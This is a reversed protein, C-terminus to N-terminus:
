DSKWTLRKLTKRLIINTFIFCIVLPALPNGSIQKQGFKNTRGINGGRTIIFFKVHLGIKKKKNVSM